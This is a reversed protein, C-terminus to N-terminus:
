TRPPRQMHRVEQLINETWRGRKCQIASCVANYLMMYAEDTCVVHISAHFIKIVAHTNIGAYPEAPSTHLTSM